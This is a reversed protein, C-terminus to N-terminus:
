MESENNKYKIQLVGKVFKFIKMADIWKQIALDKNKNSIIAGGRGSYYITYEESFKDPHHLIAKDGNLILHEVIM